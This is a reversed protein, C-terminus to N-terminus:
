PRPRLSPQRQFRWPHFIMHSSTTSAKELARRHEALDPYPVHDSFTQYHYLISYTRGVPMTNFSFRWYATKVRNQETPLPLEFPLEVKILHRIRVPYALAIPRAIASAGPRAHLHPAFIPEFFLGPMGTDADEKWPDALLWQEEVEIQNEDENDRVALPHGAEVRHYRRAYFNRYQDQIERAPTAAVQARIRDAEVGTFTTRVELRVPDGEREPLIFREIVDMASSEAGSGPVVSLTTAGKRVPLAFGYAPMFRRDLPGRQFPATPDVWLTRGDKVRAEVIVHDFVIPSPLSNAITHRLDTNVLAPWAEIGAARLLAVLLIAKDKCDGFRRRAVDALPYPAHSHIGSAVAVYRVSESVFQLAARLREDPDGTQRLKELVPQLEEPLPEDRLYFTSAWDAVAAWDTFESIEFRPYPFFWSPAYAMPRVACADRLDARVSAGDREVLRDAGNFTKLAFAEVRDEPLRILTRWRRVPLTASLNFSDAYRGGLIPNRGRISYAWEVVDGPRLDEILAELTITGDYFNRELNPERERVTIAQRETLEIRTGDRQIWLRHLTVRQYSPDFVILLKSWRELGAPNLLRVAEHVFQTESSVDTQLDLLLMFWGGADALEQPTAPAFDPTLWEVWAPAAGRAVEPPRQAAARGANLAWSAALAAAVLRPSPSKRLIAGSSIM